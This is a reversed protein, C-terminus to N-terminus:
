GGFFGGEPAKAKPANGGIGAPLPGQTQKKKPKPAKPASPKAYEGIGKEAEYLRRYSDLNNPQSELFSLFDTAQEQTYGYGNVLERTIKQKQQEIAEQQKQQEIQKQREQEARQDKADLYNALDEQYQILEQNYQYSASEPDSVADVPDYDRPKNPREPRSLVQPEQEQKKPASPSAEPQKGSIAQEVAKLIDPNQQINRALTVVDEDLGGYQNELKQAKSQWYQFRDPNEKDPIDGEEESEVNAPEEAEPSDQLQEDTESAHDEAQEQPEEASEIDSSATEPQSEQINNIADFDVDFFGSQTPTDEAQEAAADVVDEPM